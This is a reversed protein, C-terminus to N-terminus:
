LQRMVLVAMLVSLVAEIAQESTLQQATSCSLEYM